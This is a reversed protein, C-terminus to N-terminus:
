DVHLVAKGTIRRDLLTEIASPTERWSTELEVQGDLRGAAVLRCLRTLDDAVSGPEDFNNLTYIRAGPSRSYWGARFSIPGEDQQTALSVVVGHPALHEISQGFVTGGVAEVILAFDGEIRQTVVDAGLLETVASRRVLATVHAGALQALQVAFRGVGGTAGTVLVRQGLLLGGIKLSRLATLAATPLTAAQVDSVGAPLEAMWQTPIAALEAWAGKRRVLGVVRTGVAPGSGDAAAQVVEGAVDWGTVAGEPLKVLDLVEGQNLSFARVRVVAQDPLPVPDDVATLRVSRGAKVLALM